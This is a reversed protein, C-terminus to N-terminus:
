KVNPAPDTKTDVRIGVYFCLLLALAISALSVYLGTLSTKFALRIEHTGPELFVGRFIFDARLLNGPKGNVTLKWQPDYKDFLVLLAPSKVDATLEVSTPKYSIIKVSGASNTLNSAPAPAGHAIATVLPNFNTDSL